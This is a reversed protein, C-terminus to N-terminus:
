AKASKRVKGRRGKTGAIIEATFHGLKELSGGLDGEIVIAYRRSRRV